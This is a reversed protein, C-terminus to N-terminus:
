YHLYNKKIELDYWKQGNLIMLLFVQKECNSNYKLVYVPYMNEEHVMYLMLLLQYMKKKLNKGIM